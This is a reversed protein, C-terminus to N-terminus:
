KVKCGIKRGLSMEEKRMVEGKEEKQGEELCLFVYKNPYTAIWM